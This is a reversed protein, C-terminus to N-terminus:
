GVMKAKHEQRVWVCLNGTSKALLTVWQSSLYQVVCLVLFRFHRLIPRALFPLRNSGTEPVPVPVAVSRGAQREAQRASQRTHLGQETEDQGNHWYKHTMWLQICSMSAKVSSCCDLQAATEPNEKCWTFIFCICVGRVKGDSNGSSNGTGEGSERQMKISHQSITMFNALLSCHM